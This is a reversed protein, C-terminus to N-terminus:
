VDPRAAVFCAAPAKVPGPQTTSSRVNTLDTTKPRKAAAKRMVSTMM